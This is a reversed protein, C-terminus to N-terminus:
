YFLVFLCVDLGLLLFEIIEIGGKLRVRASRILSRFPRKKKKGDKSHQPHYFFLSLGKTLHLALALNIHPKDCIAKL